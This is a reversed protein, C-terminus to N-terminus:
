LQFTTAVLAGVTTTCITCVVAALMVMVPKVGHTSYLTCALATPEAPGLSQVSAALWITIQFLVVLWGFHRAASNRMPASKTERSPSHAPRVPPLKAHPIESKGAQPLHGVSIDPKRQCGGTAVLLNGEGHVGFKQDGLELLLEAIPPSVDRLRDRPICM